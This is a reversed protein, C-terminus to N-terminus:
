TWLSLSRNIIVTKMIHLIKYTITREVFFIDDIRFLDNIEQLQLALNLIILNMTHEIFFKIRKISLRNYSFFYRNLLSM